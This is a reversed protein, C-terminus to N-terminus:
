KLRYDEIIDELYEIKEQADELKYQLESCQEDLQKYTTDFLEEELIDHLLEAQKTTLIITLSDDIRLMRFKDNEKGIEESLSININDKRNLHLFSIYM